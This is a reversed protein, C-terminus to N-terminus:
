EADADSPMPPVADPVAPKPTVDLMPRPAPPSFAVQPQGDTGLPPLVVISLGPARRQAAAEAEIAGVRLQEGCKIAAVVAMANQSEDVVRNLVGPSKLCFAEIAVQRQAHAFRRVHPRGLQRRLEYPKMKAHTAAAVIDAQQDIMFQIAARLQPGVSPDRKEPTAM